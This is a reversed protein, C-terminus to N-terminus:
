SISGAHLVDRQANDIFVTYRSFVFWCIQQLSQDLHKATDHLGAEHQATSSWGVVNKATTKAAERRPSHAKPSGTVSAPNGTLARSQNTRKQLDNTVRIFIQGIESEDNRLFATRAIFEKKVSM